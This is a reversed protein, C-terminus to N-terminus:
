TDFKDYTNVPIFYISFSISLFFFYSIFFLILYSIFIYLKILPFLTM